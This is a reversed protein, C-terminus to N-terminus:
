ISKLELRKEKLGNFSKINPKARHPFPNEYVSLLRFVVVLSFYFRQLFKRVSKAMQFISGSITAELTKERYSCMTSRCLNMEVATPATQLKIADTDLQM